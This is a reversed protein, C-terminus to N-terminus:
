NTQDLLLGLTGVNGRVASFGRKRLLKQEPQHLLYQMKILFLDTRTTGLSNKNGARRGHHCSLQPNQASVCLVYHCHIFLFIDM